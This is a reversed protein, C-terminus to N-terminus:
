GFSEPVFVQTSNLVITPIQYKNSLIEVEGSGKFVGPLFNGDGASNVIAIMDADINNAYDLM